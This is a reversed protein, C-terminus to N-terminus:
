CAGKALKAACPLRRSRHHSAGSLDAGSLDARNLDARFLEAGSLNAESLDPSSIHPNEKRWKNWAAVGQNLLAVHKDNAM